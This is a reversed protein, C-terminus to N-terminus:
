RAPRPSRPQQRPAPTATTAPTATMTPATNTSETPVIGAEWAEYAAAMESFTAWAIRGDAVLPDVVETLFRDIVGFADHQSGRFEGPHITFHFVNVKGAEATEISRMLSAELYDFYAEDGGTTESRRSSAFDGRDYNGEPLFIVPGNPDHQAFLSTDDGNSGGAPRWPVTGILNLNTSQTAPNKWDSNVSLGACEAADLLGPYLNGGSWYNVTEVGAAKIFGIEQTFVDCWQSVALANGNRGLHAEEHFHLGVEHGRDELDSLISSGFTVASTSFPSQSQVTLRGGHSEVIAAVSNIDTVARDFSAATNYDPRASANPGAAGSPRQATAGMPEIHVGIGILLPQNEQTAGNAAAAGAGTDLSSQTTPGGIPGTPTCAAGAIATAALFLGFTRM